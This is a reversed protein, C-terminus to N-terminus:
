QAKIGGGIHMGYLAIAANMAGSSAGCMGRIDFKDEELLRELIGWTYAGHSGGGQLALAIKKKSM